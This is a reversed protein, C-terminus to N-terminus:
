LKGIGRSATGFEPVVDLPPISMGIDGEMIAVCLEVEGDGEKVDFTTEEWGFVVDTYM